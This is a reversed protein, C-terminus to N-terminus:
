SLSLTKYLYLFICFHKPFHLYMGLFCRFVNQFNQTGSFLSLIAWFWWFHSNKLSQLTVIVSVSVFCCSFTQSLSTIYWSFTRICKSFKPSRFVPKSYGLIMLFPYKQSKSLHYLKIYTYFYVFSNPFTYNCVLTTDLFMQFIKSVQFCAYFPGFDDFIAIKSVKFLSM